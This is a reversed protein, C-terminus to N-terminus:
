DVSVGVVKAMIPLLLYLENFVCDESNFQEDHNRNQADVCEVENGVV